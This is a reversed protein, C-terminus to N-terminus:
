APWEPPIFIESAIDDPFFVPVYAPLAAIVRLSPIPPVDYQLLACEFARKSKIQYKTQPSKEDASVFAVDFIADEVPTVFVEESFSGLRVALLVLIMCFALIRALPRGLNRRPYKASNLKGIM